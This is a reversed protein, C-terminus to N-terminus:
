PIKLWFDFFFFIYKKKRFIKNKKLILYEKRTKKSFHSKAVYTAGSKRFTQSHIQRTNPTWQNACVHGSACDRGLASLGLEVAVWTGRPGVWLGYALGPYRSCWRPLVLLHHGLRALLAISKGVAARPSLAHLKLSNFLHDPRVTGLKWALVVIQTGNIYGDELVFQGFRGFDRLRMQLCCGAMEQGRGDLRWNARRRPTDWVVM